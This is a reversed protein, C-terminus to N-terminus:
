AWLAPDQWVPPVDLQGEVRATTLALAQWAPHYAAPLGYPAAVDRTAAFGFRGYYAPNGLVLAMVAGDSTVRDLGARVLASGIGQGQHEPTVCLPALLAVWGPAGAVTCRTFAVHGALAGDREAVLSVVCAADEVLARLLPLLDEEPFALPYLQELAALDGPLSDRIM